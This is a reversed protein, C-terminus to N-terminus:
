MQRLPSITYIDYKASSNRQARDYLSENKEQINLLTKKKIDLNKIILWVNTYSNNSCFAALKSNVIASASFFIIVDHSTECEGRVCM